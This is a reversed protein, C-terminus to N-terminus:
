RGKFIEEGKAIRMVREIRKKKKLLFSAIHNKLITHLKLLELLYGKKKKLMNSFPRDMEYKLYLVQWHISSFICLTNSKCPLNIKAGFHIYTTM